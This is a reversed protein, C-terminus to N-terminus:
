IKERYPLRAQYLKLRSQIAVALESNQGKLLNLARRATEAANDFQGFEAYAAALTDLTQPYEGGSHEIAQRALEVAERGNRLSAQPCTALLWALRTQALWGNPQFDITRRYHTIALEWRGFHQYALALRYHADAFDPRLRLAEEYHGIAGEVNGKQALAVAFDFHADVLDPNIRLAQEWHRFAEDLRGQQSLAFALNTHAEARNPQIRLAQEWERTAETLRGAQALHSALNNRAGADNPNIRVAAEYHAMAESSRGQEDLDAGLNTHAMWAEPNKSLIDTWLTTPDAYVKSQRWTLVGCSMLLAGIALPRLFSKWREISDLAMTIWAGILALPGMAALYQFHDSVFSYRFFYVNFFASVPFLSVIFYAFVFSVPRLLGKKGKWLMAALLFLALAPFWVLPQTPDITWRPYIFVLPHPWFLKGLYFWPIKGAILIREVWSQAWESGVASAHNRQEWITWLGAAFSVLFFPALRVVNRGRWVGDKWWWCLGLVVPLMVTSTKSLIALVATVFSLAYAWGGGSRGSASNDRWLLFFWIALLYFLCSQTNKLETIWAVSEVQVPHLAWLAAGFWAGPVKLQELVRWLLIASAAHLALSVLHYPFPHLGWFQHQLWFSSTTLPYYVASATTWIEQFGLPGVITPNATLHVDDDWLFSGHLAPWYAFLTAAALLLGGLGQHISKPAGSELM